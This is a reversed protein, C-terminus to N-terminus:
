FGVIISVKNNRVRTIGGEIQLTTIPKNPQYIILAGKTLEAYIPTHNPLIAIEQLIGPAIVRVVQGEFLTEDPTVVVLDLYEKEQPM